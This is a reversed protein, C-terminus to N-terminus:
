RGRGAYVAPLRLWACQGPVAATGARTRAQAARAPDNVQGVPNSGGPFLADAGSAQPLPIPSLCTPTNFFPLNSGVGFLTGALGRRGRIGGIAM